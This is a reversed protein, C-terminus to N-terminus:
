WPLNCLTTQVGRRGHWIRFPWANHTKVFNKRELSSKDLLIAVKVRNMSPPPPPPHKWRWALLNSLVGFRFLGYGQFKTVKGLHANAFNPIECIQSIPRQNTAMTVLKDLTTGWIFIVLILLRSFNIRKFDETLM